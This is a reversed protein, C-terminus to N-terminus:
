TSRVNGISLHARYGPSDLTCKGNGRNVFGNSLCHGKRRHLAKSGLMPRAGALLQAAAM